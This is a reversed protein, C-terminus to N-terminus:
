FIKFGSSLRFSSVWENMWHIYCQISCCHLHLLCWALNLWHKSSCLFLSIIYALQSMVFYTSMLCNLLTKLNLFIFCLVTNFTPILYFEDMWENVWSKLQRRRPRHWSVASSGSDPYWDMVCCWARVNMGKLIKCYGTQRDTHKQLQSPVRSGSFFLRWTPYSNSM